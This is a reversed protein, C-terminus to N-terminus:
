TVSILLSNPANPDAPQDTDTKGEEHVDFFYNAQIKFLIKIFHPVSIFNDFM